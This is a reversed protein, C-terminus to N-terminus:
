VAAPLGAARLRDAAWAEQEPTLPPEPPDAYRVRFQYQAVDYCRDFVKQLDLTVTGDDRLLPIAIRPMRDPLRFPYTYYNEIDDFRHVCAHYDFDKVKARLEAAPVATSHTGARLLDIEVLHARGDFVEQQKRRYLTRGREGPTKNKLSLIEITTVLREAGYRARIELFSERYEEQPVHVVVPEAAPDAATAVGGNAGGAPMHGRLVDVDPEVAREAFEVWVRSGIATFYPRPLRAQLEERIYVIMSDHLDPFLGPHELWPDMGPFPSPM